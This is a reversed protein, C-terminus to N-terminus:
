RVLLRAEHARLARRAAQYSDRGGQDRLNPFLQFIENRQGDGMSGLSLDGPQFSETWCGDALVVEHQDFMFHIYSTGYAQAWRIGGHDVLHKAAVLVESEDFFLQTRDSSVLMRHQPSVMMDREPLGDGLAGKKVLIPRLTPARMLERGTLDRRGIWRIEQIGNDRTIVTDGQRLTEVPVEGRPTAILAGPTFCPIVNEIESFSMEGVINDDEFGAGDYFVVKGAEGPTGGPDVKDGPALDEDFVVKKNPGYGSLDLTDNDVGGEGGIVTDGTGDGETDIVFTDVDDGGEMQDIGQGGRLTDDGEGGLLTDDDIGGDLFDDGTGGILLDDDDEGFITDNGAGGDLVDKGNNPVPDPGFGSANSGDDEINLTDPVSPGLGGYILDDGDGGEVTDNGEGSIITDDGAGGLVTDDDIGSDITDDGDGGDIVDQDDGTTITDDGAGGFVTDRDDFPSTGPITGDAPIPPVPGYGPFGIDPLPADGSTDIVDDGDGGDVTDNGDGTTIQDDGAGGDVDDDGSGADVTDNGEGGDITDDGSGGTLSDDGDGGVLTDDGEAGGLDDDGAGGLLTDDGRQGRLTDDGGGGDLLDDGDGGMLTDDGGPTAETVGADFYVDTINVGSNGAGDQVHDIVIQDVPGPVSVLVSYDPSTDPANGGVSTATDDGAVGDTDTLDLNDGGELIVEVPQGDVFATVAVQSDIDIDNIRFSVAEVPKDFSLDYAATDEHNTVLSDYSSRDDAPAGEPGTNIGDVLQENGAVGDGPSPDTITFTVNTTGTDQSIPAASGDAVESWQFVERAPGTATATCGTTAPGVWCSTTAPAATSTTM